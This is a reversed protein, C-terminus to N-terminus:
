TPQIGGATLGSARMKPMFPGLIKEIESTVEGIEAMGDVSRLVGKTRYYAVLPATQKYYIELRSRM